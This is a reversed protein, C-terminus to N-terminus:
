EAEVEHEHFVGFVLAMAQVLGHRLMMSLINGTGLISVPPLMAVQKGVALRNIAIKLHMKPITEM